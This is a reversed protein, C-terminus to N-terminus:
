CGLPDPWAVDLWSDKRVVESMAEELLRKTTVISSVEGRGLASRKISGSGSRPSANIKFYDEKYTGLTDQELGM